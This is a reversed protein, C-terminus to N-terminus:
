DTPDPFVLHYYERVIWALFSFAEIAQTEHCLQNLWDYVYDCTQFVGLATTNNM